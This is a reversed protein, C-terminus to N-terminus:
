DESDSDASTDGTISSNDADGTSGADDFASAPASVVLMGTMWPHYSCIYAYTGPASATWSFTEGSNLNGSDFGGDNATVTHAAGGTNVWVVVDGVQASIVSPQFTWSRFNSSPEVVQASISDARAIGYGVGVAAITSAMVPILWLGPRLRYRM